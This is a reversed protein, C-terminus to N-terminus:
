FAQLSLVRLLTRFAPHARHRLTSILSCLLAAEFILCGKRAAALLAAASSPYVPHTKSSDCGAKAGRKEREPEGLSYFAFVELIRQHGSIYLFSVGRYVTDSTFLVLNDLTRKREPASCRKYRQNDKRNLNLNLM